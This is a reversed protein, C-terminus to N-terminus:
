STQTTFELSEIIEKKILIGHRGMSLNNGNEDIWKPDFLYISGESPTDSYYLPWGLIRHGDKLNAVVYRDSQDTFVDSWMTARATRNTVRIKRLFRMHWDHTMFTGIVLPYIVSFGLMLAIQVSPNSDPFLLFRSASETAASQDANSAIAGVLSTSGYALFSFALAEFLRMLTDKDKRVTIANLVTMSLFGPLLIILISLTEASIEM